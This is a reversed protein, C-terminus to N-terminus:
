PIFYSLFKLQKKESFDNSEVNFPFFVKEKTNKNNRFQKGGCIFSLKGNIEKIIAYNSFDHYYNKRLLNM